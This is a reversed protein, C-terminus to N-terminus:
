QLPETASHLLGRTRSTDRVVHYWCFATGEANQWPDRVTIRTAGTIKEIVLRSSYSGLSDTIAGSAAPNHENGCSCLIMAASVISLIIRSM